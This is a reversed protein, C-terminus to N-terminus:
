EAGVAKGYVLHRRRRPAPSPRRSFVRGHVRREHRDREAAAALLADLSVDADVHQFLM